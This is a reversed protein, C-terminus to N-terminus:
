GSNLNPFRKQIAEAMGQGAADGRLLSLRYCRSAYKKAEDMEGQLALCDSMSFLAMPDDPNLALRQECYYKV